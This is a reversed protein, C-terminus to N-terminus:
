SSAEREAVEPAGPAAWLDVRVKQVENLKMVLFKPRPIEYDALTIEFSSEIHLRAGGPGESRTLRLPLEVTRTVGHLNMTGQVTLTHPQGDLLSGGAGEVIKAATFVAKPFRETHLHNECMHTNRMGIGTDLSAMDVEVTLGLTEGLAAPDLEVTGSVQGTRGEFTEMPASSEFVVLCEGAEPGIRFTDALAATAFTTSTLLAITLQKV